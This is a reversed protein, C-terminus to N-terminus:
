GARKGALLRGLKVFRRRRTKTKSTGKKDDVKRKTVHTDTKTTVKKKKRRGTHWDGTEGAGTIKKGYKEKTKTTLAGSEDYERTKVKKGEYATGGKTKTEKKRTGDAYTERELKKAGVLGGPEKIRVNIEKKDGTTKAPKTAKADSVEYRKSNGLASNIKNQTRKWEDSGKELTSRKKVLANLDNGEAKAKDKGKQWDADPMQDSKKTTKKDETPTENKTEKKEEKKDDGFIKDAAADLGATILIWKGADKAADWVWKMKGKKTVKITGPKIGGTTTALAKTKKAPLTTTKKKKSASKILKKGGKWVAKGGKYILSYPNIGKQPSEGGAMEGAAGGREGMAAERARASAVEKARARRIAAQEMAAKDAAMKQPSVYGTGEGFSMGKMKFAM